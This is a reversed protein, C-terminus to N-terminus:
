ENREGYVVDDISDDGMDISLFPDGTFLPDDPPITTTETDIALNKLAEDPSTGKSLQETATDYATWKGDPTETLTIQRASSM